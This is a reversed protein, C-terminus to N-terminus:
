KEGRMSEFHEGRWEDYRQLGLAFEKKYKLKRRKAESALAQYVEDGKRFHKLGDEDELLDALLDAEGEACMSAGEPADDAYEEIAMILRLIKFPTNRECMKLTNILHSDEMDKIAIRQGNKMKWHTIQETQM